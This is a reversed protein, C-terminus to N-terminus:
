LSGKLGFPDHPKHRFDVRSSALSSFDTRVSDFPTVQATQSDEDYEYGGVLFTVPSGASVAGGFDAGMIRVIEGAQETALNIRSGRNTLYQGASVTFPGAFAAQQYRNLIANGVAQAQGSTMQGANSLDVYQESRGYAAIMAANTVTTTTFHAAGSSGDAQDEYRIDIANVIGGMTRAVPGTAVLLRTPTMPVTPVTIFRFLNGSPGPKVQWTLGGRSCVLNMMDAVSLSSNDPVQGLWATAPLQTHSIGPNVWRLGRSIAQSLADDVADGSAWTATWHARFMTGFTGAGHATIQWGDSSPTPEDLQGDWVCRPGAYAQVQRGARIADPRSRPDAQLICSLQDPGGPVTHSFTLSAVHGYRALWTPRSGDPQRTVVQVTASIPM